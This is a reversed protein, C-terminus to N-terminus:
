EKDGTKKLVKNKLKWEDIITTLLNATFAHFSLIIDNITAQSLGNEKLYDLAIKKYAEALEVKM